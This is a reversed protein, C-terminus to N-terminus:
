LTTPPRYNGGGTVMGVGTVMGMGMGMGTGPVMGTGMGTGPIMGTGMGTVMGKENYQVDTYRRAETPRRTVSTNIERTYSEPVYSSTAQMNNIIARQDTVRKRLEGVERQLENRNEKLKLVVSAEKERM